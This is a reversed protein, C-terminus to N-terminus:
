EQKPLHKQMENVRRTLEDVDSIKAFSGVAEILAKGTMPDIKGQAVAELISEAKETLTEGKLDFRVPQAEPKIAPTLRELCLRLASADGSLAMEIAKAVLASGKAELPKRWETRRDPRGKPRGGPNGSKGKQFAM